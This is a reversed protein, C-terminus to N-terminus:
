RRTDGPIGTRFLFEGAGGASEAQSVSGTGSANASEGGSKDGCGALMASIMTLSLAAALAKKMVKKKM